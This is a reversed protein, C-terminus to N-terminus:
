SLPECFGSIGFVTMISGACAFYRNAIAGLRLEDVTIAGILEAGAAISAGVSLGICRRGDRGPVDGGSFLRFSVRGASSFFSAARV